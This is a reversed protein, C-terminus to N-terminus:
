STGGEVAGAGECFLRVIFEDSQFPKPADRLDRSRTRLMGLFVEGLVEPPVDGRLAGRSQGAEITEAVARVLERRRSLWRSRTGRPLDGCGHQGFQLMRFMARRREFFASVDGSIQRLRSEFDGNTKEAARRVLGCLDAFGSMAVEFFLDDKDKFYLYITGKGIAAREAVEDLKVEHQDRAALLEEAARLIRERKEDSQVKM